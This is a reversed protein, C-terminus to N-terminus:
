ELPFSHFYYIRQKLISYNFNNQTIINPKKTKKELLISAYHYLSPLFATQQQNSHNKLHQLLTPVLEKQREM